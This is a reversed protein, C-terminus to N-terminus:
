LMRPLWGVNREPLSSELATADAYSPHYISGGYPLIARRRLSYIAFHVPGIGALQTNM